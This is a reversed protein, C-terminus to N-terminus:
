TGWAVLAAVGTVLLVILMMAIGEGRITWNARNGIQAHDRAAGAFNLVSIFPRFDEGLSAIRTDRTGRSTCIRGSVAPNGVFGASFRQCRLSLPPSPPIRVGPATLSVQNRTLGTLGSERVEGRPFLILVFLM